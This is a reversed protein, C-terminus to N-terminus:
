TTNPTGQPDADPRPSAKVEEANPSTKKKQPSAVEFAFLAVILAAIVLIGQPNVQGTAPNYMFDRIALIASGLYPIPITFQYVGVVWSAPIYGQPTWFDVGPNRDGKTRFSIENFVSQSAPVIGVVRHIVLFDPNAPDSRFVIISQNAISSPDQGKIVVLAGVPLVCNNIPCMSPSSVVLIPYPTNLALRIGGWVAVAGLIVIGVLFLGRVTENKRLLARFQRIYSNL